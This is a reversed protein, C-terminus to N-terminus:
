EQTVDEKYHDALAENNANYPTLVKGTMTVGTLSNKTISGEISPTVKVKPFSWVVQKGNRTRCKLQISREVGRGPFNYQGATLTGGFIRLLEENSANYTAASITKAVPDGDLVDYVTDTEEVMIKTDEQIPFEMTVSDMVIASIAVLDAGMAGNAGVPGILLEEVGHIKAM